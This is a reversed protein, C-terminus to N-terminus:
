IKIGLFSDVGGKDMLEFTLDKLKSIAKDINPIMKLSSYKTM